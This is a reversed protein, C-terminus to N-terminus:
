QNYLTAVHKLEISGDEPSVDVIKYKSNHMRYPDMYKERKEKIVM